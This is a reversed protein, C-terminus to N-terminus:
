RKTKRYINFSVGKKENKIYIDYNMINLTKKVISLGLGFSGKVGKRYPNFIAEILNDDIKNGDNYLIIKNNKATIKIEKKAYRMFNSLLNDIITEWADITGFYKSKKDFEKIFKIDKRQFKFKDIENSILKKMNIEEIKLEKDKLYDLKNLYLLSEVKNQLINTQEKIVKLSNTKTEIKDESAEVYSKIVALPTKFDHSINQYMTNRVEEQNKLSLRMDELASSLSKFEDEIKFKINHNYRNNDINDIKEKLKEIKRVIITSWAVLMIGIIIFTIILVPFIASLISAKTDKIYKDNTLAIKINNDKKIVSYYYVKNKYNYNINLHKRKKIIM